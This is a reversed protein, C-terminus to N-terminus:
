LKTLFFINIFCIDVFCFSATIKAPPFHALTLAQSQGTPAPTPALYTIRSIV